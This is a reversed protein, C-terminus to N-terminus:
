EGKKTESGDYPPLKLQELLEHVSTHDQPVAWGAGRVALAAPDQEDMQLLAISVNKSLDQDTGTVSAFPWEPYLPTSLLYPYNPFETKKDNLIKISSLTIKGEKAMRELQTSRVTAADAKGDLVAYVAADHTKTFNLSSFDKDPTIGAQLFESLAAQWGGLSTPDVAAFSKGKLDSLSKIDDRDAATFIVAGYLAQPFPDGPVQLTAIRHALGYYELYTYVSPNACIFSVNKERVAEYTENFDLPIIVFAAPSLVRSLYEATPGWEQMAIDSGRNALIGIRIPQDHGSGASILEVAAQGTPSTNMSPVPTTTDGLGPSVSLVVLLIFTWSILSLYDPKMM